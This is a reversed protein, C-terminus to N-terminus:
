KLPIPLTAVGVFVGTPLDDSPAVMKYIKFDKVLLKFTGLGLNKKVDKKVHHLRLGLEKLDEGAVECVNKYNALDADVWKIIKLNEKFLSTDLLIPVSVFRALEKDMCKAQVLRKSLLSM